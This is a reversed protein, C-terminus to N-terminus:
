RASKRGFQPRIWAEAKGRELGKDAREIWRSYVEFPMKSSPHGLRRAVWALNAGSMLCITAFTHRTQKPARHCLGLRKTAAQFYRRQVQEDAWPKGTTPNM